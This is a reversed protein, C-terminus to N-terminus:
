QRACYAIRRKEVIKPEIKLIGKMRPVSGKRATLM